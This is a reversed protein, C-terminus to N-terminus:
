RSADASDVPGDPGCSSCSRWGVRTASSWGLSPSGGRFGADVQGFRDIPEQTLEVGAAQFRAYTARCDDVYLVLGPMAGKAVLERLDRETDPDHLPAGPGLAQPLGDVLPTGCRLLHDSTSGAPIGKGSCGNLGLLLIM